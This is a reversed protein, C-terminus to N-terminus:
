VKKCQFISGIDSVEALSGSLIEWAVECARSKAPFNELGGRDPDFIKRGEFRGVGAGQTAVHVATPFYGTSHMVIM